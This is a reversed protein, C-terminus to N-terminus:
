YNLTYIVTNGAETHISDDFVHQSGNKTVTWELKIWDDSQVKCEISENYSPGDGTNPQNDCCGNGQVEINTYRYTIKDDIGHPTTNKVKLEIWAEAVM